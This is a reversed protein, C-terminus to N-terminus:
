SQLNTKEEEFSKRKNSWIKILVMWKMVGFLTTHYSPNIPKVRPRPLRVYGIIGRKHTCVLNQTGPTKLLM